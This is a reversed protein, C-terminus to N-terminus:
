LNLSQLPALLWSIFGGLSTRRPGREMGDCPSTDHEAPMSNVAHSLAWRTQGRGGSVRPSSSPLSLCCCCAFSATAPAHRTRLGYSECGGIVAASVDGDAQLTSPRCAHRTYGELDLLASCSLHLIIFMRWSVRVDVVKSYQQNRHCQRECEPLCM